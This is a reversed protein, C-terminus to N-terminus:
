FILLSVKPSICKRNAIKKLQEVPSAIFEIPTACCVQDILHMLHEAPVATVM